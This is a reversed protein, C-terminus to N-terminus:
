SHTTCKSGHEFAVMLLVYWSNTFPGWPQTIHVYTALDKDTIVHEIPFMTIPNSDADLLETFLM